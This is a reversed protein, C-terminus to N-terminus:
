ARCASPAVIRDAGGSVVVTPATIEGLRRELAPLQRVLMRQESAFARWARPRLLARGLERLYGEEVGLGAVLRQRVPPSSLAAGGSALMGASVLPGIVPAALLQDLRNLSNVNAAPAALVLAHVREPHEAALWAAVAAGLSHGAVTARRVGCGDWGPRNVALTRARPGIARRVARWDEASGPQGHLLLVAPQAMAPFGIARGARTGGARARAAREIPAGAGRTRLQGPRVGRRSLSQGTVDASRVSASAGSRWLGARAAIRSSMSPVRAGM